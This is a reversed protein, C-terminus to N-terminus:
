RQVDVDLRVLFQELLIQEVIQRRLLPACIHRLRRDKIKKFIIRHVSFDGTRVLIYPRFSFTQKHIHKNGTFEAGNCDVWVYLVYESDAHYRSRM